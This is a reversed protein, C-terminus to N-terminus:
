TRLAIDQVHGIGRFGDPAFHVFHQAARDSATPHKHHQSLGDDRAVFRESSSLTQRRGTPPARAARPCAPPFSRLCACSRWVPLVFPCFFFGGSREPAARPAVTLIIKYMNFRKM